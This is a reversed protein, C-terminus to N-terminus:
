RLDFPGLSLAGGDLRYVTGTAFRGIPAVLYHVLGAVEEPTGARDALNIRRGDSRVAAVADAAMPTDVLGPNVQVIRIGEAGWEKAVAVTVAALGAKTAGYVGSGASPREADVSGIMVVCADSAAGASAARVAAALHPHALQALRLPAWLNLEVLADFTARDLDVLPVWDARGANNVLVDLGGLRDVARDIVTDLQDPDALDAVVTVARGPGDELRAVLADLPAARRAVLAVSAGAGALREAIAAGIGSSAGTILVRRGGLDFGPDVM